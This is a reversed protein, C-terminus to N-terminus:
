RIIRAPNGVVICNDPIDKVVVAGAGIIVNDGIKINGIITVNAGISVNNGISPVLDNRGHLANGITTLHCVTFNDGITKANIITAYPHNLVFAGGGIKEAHIEFLSYSPALCRLLMCRGGIRYYFLNRYPPTFLLYYLLHENMKKRKNMEAIDRNILGKIEPNAFLYRFFHPLLLLYFLRRM